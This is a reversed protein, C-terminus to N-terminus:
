RMGGSEFTRNWYTMWEEYSFSDKNNTKLDQYIDKLLQKVKENNGKELEKAIMLVVQNNYQLKYSKMLEDFKELTTMEASSSMWNIHSVTSLYYFDTGNFQEFDNWDFDYYDKYLVLLYTDMLGKLVSDASVEYYQNLYDHGFLGFSILRSKLDIMTNNIVKGDDVQVYTQVNDDFFLAEDFHNINYTETGVYNLSPVYVLKMDQQFEEDLWNEFFDEISAMDGLKQQILQYNEKHAIVSFPLNGKYKVLGKNSFLTLGKADESTFILAGDASKESFHATSFVHHNFNTLEVQFDSAPLAQNLELHRNFGITHIYDETDAHFLTYISYDGPLPYWGIYSPIYMDEGKFFAFNRESGYLHGWENLNGTYEVELRNLEQQDINSLTVLHQKKNFDTKVGNWSVSEVEFSPYLSFNLTTNKQLNPILLEAKIHFSNKRTREMKISYSDVNYFEGVTDLVTGDDSDYQKVAGAKLYNFHELRDSWLYSYPFISAVTLATVIGFLTWKRKEFSSIRNTSSKMITIALLFLSFFTVFLQSYLTEKRSLRFGWDESHSIDMFFQNLHFTKLFHLQYRQIIYGEMFFTGFMWACFVIIYVIRNTILVALVMGLSITVAYSLQSQVSFSLGHELLYSLDKGFSSGQWVFILFYVLTFLSSYIFLSLFKALIITLFSNPLSNTWDLLVTQKERRISLVSALFLVGLSLTHGIALFENNAKFFGSSYQGIINAVDQNHNSLWLSMSVGYVLPALLFFWNKLLFRNELQLQKLFRM